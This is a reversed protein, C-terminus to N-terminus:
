KAKELVYTQERDGQPGHSHIVKTMTRGEDSLTPAVAVMVVALTLFGSFLKSMPM